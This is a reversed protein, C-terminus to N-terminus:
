GRCRLLGSFTFLVFYVYLSFLEICYKRNYVSIKQTHVPHISPYIAPQNGPQTTTHHHVKVGIAFLLINVNLANLQRKISKNNNNNIKRRTNFKVESVLNVVLWQVVVTRGSFSSSITEALRVKQGHQTSHSHAFLTRELTM